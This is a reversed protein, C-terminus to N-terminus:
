PILLHKLRESEMVHETIAFVEKKLKRFGKFLTAIKEELEVHEDRFSQEDYTFASEMIRAIHSLHKQLAEALLARQKALKSLDVIILRVKDINEDKTMWIFYKDILKNLFKMEHKYFDLDSKWHQSLVYLEEWATRHLLRSAQDTTLDKMHWKKSPTNLM